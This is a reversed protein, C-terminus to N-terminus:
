YFCLIMVVWIIVIFYLKRYKSILLENIFDLVLKTNNMNEKDIYFMHVDKDLVTKFGLAYIKVTGDKATFTETDIVGINNDEVM